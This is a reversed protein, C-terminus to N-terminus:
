ADNASHQENSEIEELVRELYASRRFMSEIEEGTVEHEFDEYVITYTREPFIPYRFKSM